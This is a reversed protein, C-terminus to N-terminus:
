FTYRFESKNKFHAFFWFEFFYQEFKFFFTEIKFKTLLLHKSNKECKYIQFYVEDGFCGTKNIM